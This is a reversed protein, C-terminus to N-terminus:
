CCGGGNYHWTSDSIFIDSRNLAALKEATKNCISLPHNNLLIHGNHDDFYEESGFYIASRGTFICPGDAPILDKIACIEVSEIFIDAELTYKEKSLIRYPYKARVEVTGFGASTILHLYENLSIAGSLCIARLDEDDALHQPIDSDCVPDSLILRGGPRLVRYMEGIAKVLDKRTFINFLCNQAAIDISSDEVPLALANGHILRIFDRRFWPNLKEAEKLNANCVDIMQDVVDLGIVKGAHRSFYAFQLLEMGGGIGVYLVVPDGSLDAPHVTSGCGYNMKLMKGPITLGPLQWVPNTTCCLGENPSLAAKHYVDITTELYSEM